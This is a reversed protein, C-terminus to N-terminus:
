SIALFSILRSACRSNLSFFKYILHASHSDSIQNLETYNLLILQNNHFIYLENILNKLTRFFLSKNEFKIDLIIERM